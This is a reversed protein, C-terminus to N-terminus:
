QKGGFVALARILNVAKSKRNHCQRENWRGVSNTGLETAVQWISKPLGDLYFAWELPQKIESSMLFHLRWIEYQSKRNCLGLPFYCASTGSLSSFGPHWMLLAKELCPGTCAHMSLRCGAMPWVMPQLGGPEETWQTKWALINSHTAM